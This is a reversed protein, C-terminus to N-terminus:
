WLFGDQKNGISRSRTRYPLLSTCLNEGLSHHILHNSFSKSIVSEVLQIAADLYLFSEEAPFGSYCSFEDIIIQDRYSGREIFQTRSM